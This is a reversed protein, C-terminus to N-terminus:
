LRISGNAPGEVAVQPVAHQRTLYTSQEVTAIGASTVTVTTPKTSGETPAVLAGSPLIEFLEAILSGCERDAKKARWNSISCHASHGRHRIARGPLFSTHFDPPITAAIANEIASPEGARAASQLGFTLAHM